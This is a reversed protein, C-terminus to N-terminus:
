ARVCFALWLIVYICHFHSPWTGSSRFPGDTANLFDVLFREMVDATYNISPRDSFGLGPWDVIIARWDTAGERTLLNEAVVRWEEATSVDSITPIMLIDKCPASNSEKYEEFYIKVPNDEFRWTWTGSQFIM